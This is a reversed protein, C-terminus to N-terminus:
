KEIFKKALVPELAAVRYICFPSVMNNESGETSLEVVVTAYDASEPVKSIWERLEKITMPKANNM